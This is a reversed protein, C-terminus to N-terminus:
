SNGTFIHLRARRRTKSGAAIWGGLIGSSKQAPLASLPKLISSILPSIWGAEPIKGFLTEILRRRRCHACSEWCASEGGADEKLLYRAVIASGDLYLGACKSSHGKPRPFPKIPYYEVGKWTLPWWPHLPQKCFCYPFSIPIFYSISLKQRLNSDDWLFRVSNSKPNDPLIKTEVSLGSWLALLIPHLWPQFQM